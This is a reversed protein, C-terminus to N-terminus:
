KINFSTQGHIAPEEIRLGTISVKCMGTDWTLVCDCGARMACAVHIADTPRFNHARCLTNAQMGILRDVEILDIFPNELYDIILNQTDDSQVPSHYPKYCEAYVYPSTVIRYLGNQAQKLVHSGIEGRHVGKVIENKIVGIFVGSDIYPYKYPESVELGGFISM